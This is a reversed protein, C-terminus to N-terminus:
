DRLPAMPEPGIVDRSGTATLCGQGRPAAAAMPLVRLGRMLADLARVPDVETVIVQAGLGRARDAIGSGCPGYGAGVVVQGALLTNTARLIGDIVSQGTGCFNDFM